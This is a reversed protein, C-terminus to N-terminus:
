SKPTKTQNTKNTLQKNVKPGKLLKEKGMEDICKNKLSKLSNTWCKLPSTPQADKWTATFLFTSKSDKLSEEGAKGKRERKKHLECVSVFPQLELADSGWM